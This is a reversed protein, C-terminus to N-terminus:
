GFDEAPSKKTDGSRFAEHREDNLRMEIEKDRRAKILEAPSMVLVKSLPFENRWYQLAFHKLLGAYDEANFPGQSDSWLPGEKYCRSWGKGKNWELADVDHEGGKIYVLYNGMEM